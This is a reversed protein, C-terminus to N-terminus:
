LVKGGDPGRSDAPHVPGVPVAHQRLDKYAASVEVVAGVMIAQGETDGTGGHQGIAGGVNQFGGPFPMGMQQFGGMQNPPRFGMQGVGPPGGIIKRGAARTQRISPDIAAGGM